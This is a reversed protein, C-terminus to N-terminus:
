VSCLPSTCATEFRRCGLLVTCITNAKQAPWQTGPLIQKKCRKIGPGEEYTQETHLIPDTVNQTTHNNNTTSMKTMWHMNRTLCKHFSICTSWLANLVRGTPTIKTFFCYTKRHIAHLTFNSNQLHQTDFNQIM